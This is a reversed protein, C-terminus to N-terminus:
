ISIHTFIHTHICAKIYILISSSSLQKLRIQGQAVGYVAALWARGDRPNQLCSCQLPNGNGGGLSRRSQSISVVDGPDGSKPPPNKVVSDGPFGPKVM